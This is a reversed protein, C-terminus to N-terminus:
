GSHISHVEFWVRVIDCLCVSVSIAMRGVRKAIFALMVKDKQQTLTVRVPGICGKWLNMSIYVRGSRGVGTYENDEGDDNLM